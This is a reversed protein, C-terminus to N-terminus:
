PCEGDNYALEKETEIGCQHSKLRKYRRCIATFIFRKLEVSTRNLACVAPNKVTASKLKLEVTTRNLAFFGALIYHYDHLKLEM